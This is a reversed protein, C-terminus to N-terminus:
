HAPSMGVQLAPNSEQYVHDRTPGYAYLDAKFWPKRQDCHTVALHFKADQCDARCRAILEGADLPAFRLEGQFENPQNTEDVFRLAPDEGPLPGAGHRTVYTRTVYYAELERFGGIAALKRVNHMGTKSRTVHPHFAKNDEDLLLGQAGEFIPDGFVMGAPQLIDAVLACERRYAEAMAEFNPVPAGTRWEAYKSCIEALQAELRKGGNWLDALTIKLEPLRSREITENFGVGCSGHRDAGRRRELTQNILMDAFTTVLCEPHAYITADVGLRALAALEGRLLIPNVVFFQSLYTPVGRYAGAGVHQFVHRRGDPTVVTHGAQAGGNFRIVADAGQTACLYDVILGKGEDGFSAGIVARARM